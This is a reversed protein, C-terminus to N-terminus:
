LRSRNSCLIKQFGVSVFWAFLFIKMFLDGPFTWLHLKLSRKLYFYLFIESMNEWVIKKRNNQLEWLSYNNFNFDHRWKDITHFQIPIFKDHRQTLDKWLTFDFDIINKSWIFQEIFLLKNFLAWQFTGISVRNIYVRDFWIIQIFTPVHLVFTNEYM